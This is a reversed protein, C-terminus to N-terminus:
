VEDNDNTDIKIETAGVLINAIDGYGGDVEFILYAEDEGFVSDATPQLIYGSYTNLTVDKTLDYTPGYVYVGVYPPSTMEESGDQPLAKVYSAYLGENYENAYCKDYELGQIM